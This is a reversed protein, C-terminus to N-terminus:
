GNSAPSSEVGRRAVGVDAVHWCDGREPLRELAMPLTTGTPLAALTSRLDGDFSVVTRHANTEVVEVTMAGHDNVPRRITVLPVTGASQGTGPVHDTGTQEGAGGAADHHRDFM